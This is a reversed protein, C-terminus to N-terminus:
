ASADFASGYFDAADIEDRRVREFNKGRLKILHSQHM